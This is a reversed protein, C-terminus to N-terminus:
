RRRGAPRCRTTPRGVRGFGSNDFEDIETKGEHFDQPSYEGDILAHRSCRRDGPTEVDFEVVGHDFAM